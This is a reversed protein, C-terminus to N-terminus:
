SMIRGRIAAARLYPSHKECAIVLIMRKQESDFGERAPM